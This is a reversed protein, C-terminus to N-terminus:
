PQLTKSLGEYLSEYQRIQREVAFNMVITERGKNGIENRLSKNRYLLEVVDAIVYPAAKDLLIANYGIKYNNYNTINEIFQTHITHDKSDFKM